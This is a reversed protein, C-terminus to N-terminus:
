HFSFCKLCVNYQLERCVNATSGLVINLMTKTFLDSSTKIRRVTPVISLLHNGGVFSPPRLTRLVSGVGFAEDEPHYSYDVRFSYSDEVLSPSISTPSVSETFQFSQRGQKRERARFAKESRVRVKGKERKKV